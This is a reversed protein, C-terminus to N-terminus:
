FIIKKENTMDMNEVILSTCFIAFGILLNSFNRTPTNMNVWKPRTNWKQVGLFGFTKQIEWPIYFYFMPSFQTLCILDSLVNVTKKENLNLPLILTALSRGSVDGQLYQLWNKLSGQCHKILNKKMFTIKPCAEM